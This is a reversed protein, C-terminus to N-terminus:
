TALEGFPFCNMEASIVLDAGFNKFESEFFSIGQVLLTDADIVMLIDANCKKLFKPLEYVKTAVWGLWRNGIGVLELPIGQKSASLKLYHLDSHNKDEYFAYGCVLM